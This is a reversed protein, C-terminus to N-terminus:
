GGTAVAFTVKLRLSCGPCEVVLEGQESSQHLDNENLSFGKADGCRCDCHWESRACDYHLEDLDVTEIGSYLNEYRTDDKDKPNLELQRDHQLRYVKNTLTKYANTVQDISYRIKKSHLVGLDQVKDPHNSLLARRYADKIEQHSIPPLGYTPPRLALVKYCDLEQHNNM